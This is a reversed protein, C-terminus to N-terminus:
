KNISLTNKESYIKKIISDLRQIDQKRLLPSINITDMDLELKLPVTSIVLDMGELDSKRLFTSSRSVVIDLKNFEHTLKNRLLKSEGTGGHCVLATRLPRKAREIASALHLTLYGIEDDGVKSGLYEEFAGISSKVVSFTNPYYKMIEDLIPNVVTLGFRIRTIVPKLHLILSSFLEEDDSVRISLTREWRSMLSRALEVLGSIDPDGNNAAYRSLADFDNTKSCKIYMTLNLVEDEPILTGFVDMLRSCIDRAISYEYSERLRKQNSKQVTIYHNVSIRKLMVALYVLIVLLSEDAMNYRILSETSLATDRLLPFDIDIIEKFIKLPPSTMNMEVDDSGLIDKLEMYSKNSCILLLIARRLDKEAAVLRLGYNSKRYLELGNRRLWADVDYLDKHVTARSVHLTTALDKIRLRSGSTFLKVLMYNVRDEPSYAEVMHSKIALDEMVRLKVSEEGRIAIGVGAKKDLKLDFDKLWEELVMLDNRVTKNSCDVAAAISDVTMYENKSLLQEAIEILRQNM